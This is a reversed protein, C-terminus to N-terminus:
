TDCEDARRSCRPERKMKKNAQTDRYDFNTNSGDLYKSIKDADAITVGAAM